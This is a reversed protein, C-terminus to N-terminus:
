RFLSDFKKKIDEKSSGGSHRGGMSRGQAPQFYECHNASEKNPTWEAQPEACQNNKSTDYFQCNRCCHLDASCEPCEATRGIKGGTEVAISAGCKWCAFQM